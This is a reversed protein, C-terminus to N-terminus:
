FIYSYPHIIKSSSCSKTWFDFFLMYVLNFFHLNKGMEYAYRDTGRAQSLKIM